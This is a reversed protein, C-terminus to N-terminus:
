KQWTGNRNTYRLSYVRINLHGGWTATWVRKCIDLTFGFHVGRFHIWIMEPRDM